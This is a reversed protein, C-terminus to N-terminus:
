RKNSLELKDIQMKALDALLVVAKEPENMGGTYQSLSLGIQINGYVTIVMILRGDEAYAWSQEPLTELPIEITRIGPRGGNESIIKEALSNAAEATQFSRISIGLQLTSNSVTLGLSDQELIDWVSRVCAEPLCDSRDSILLGDDVKLFDSANIEQSVLLALTLPTM